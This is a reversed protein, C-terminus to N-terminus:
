RSGGSCGVDSDIEVLHVIVPRINEFRVIEALGPGRDIAAQRTLCGMDHALVRVPAAEQDKTGFRSKVVGYVFALMPSGQLATERRSRDIVQLKFLPLVVKHDARMASSQENEVVDTRELLQRCFHLVGVQVEEFYRGRM